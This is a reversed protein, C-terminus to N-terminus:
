RLKKETTKLFVTFKCARKLDVKEIEIQLFIFAEDWSSFVPKQCAFALFCKNAFNNLHSQLSADYAGTVSFIPCSKSRVFHNILETKGIRRRGYVAVFSSTEKQYARELISLEDERAVFKM